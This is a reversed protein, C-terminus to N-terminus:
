GFNNMDIEYLRFMAHMFREADEGMLVGRAGSVFRVEIREIKHEENWVIQAEEINDTNIASKGENVQLWTM